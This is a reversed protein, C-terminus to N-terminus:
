ALLPDAVAAREVRVGGTQEQEGETLGRPQGAEQDAGGLDVLAVIRKPM